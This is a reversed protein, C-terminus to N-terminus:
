AKSETLWSELLRALAAPDSAIAREIERRMRKALEEPALDEEKIEEVEPVAAGTTAPAARKFLGKLFFLVLVVGLLQGVVPAWEMAIAMMGPGGSVGADPAEAPFEGILTSFADEQDRTPDWGVIAKVTKILEDPKFGDKEALTKDYILSVTLRRIAPALRGARKEGIDTVFERDRTEKRTNNKSAAADQATAAAASPDGGATGQGISNDTSDKTVKDTKVLPEAPLVKQTVVEWAPDLEVGVTVVTKGPWVLDLADQAARTRMDGMERQQALFESSGGGAQRAPDYHWRRHTGADVVDVNELKVMLQSSAMSAASWAIEEFKAGQRLRLAVTARPETDADRDRFPSRRPQKALVTASLVGDLGAIASAAIARSADNLKSAKTDADDIISTSLNGADASGGRLGAGFIAGKAQEVVSRDVEISNGGNTPRFGIGQGTLAQQAQRLEDANKAVFVVEYSPQGAFWVIAGLGVMAATMVAVVILRQGGDLRGWIGKLQTLLDAFFQRM